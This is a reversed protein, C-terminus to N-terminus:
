RRPTSGALSMPSPPAIVFPLRISRIEGAKARCHKVHFMQEYKTYQSSHELNPRRDPNDHSHGFLYILNQKSGAAHVTKCAVPMKHLLFRTAAAKRSVIAFRIM